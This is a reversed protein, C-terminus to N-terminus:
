KMLDEYCVRTLENQLHPFPPVTHNLLKGPHVAPFHYGHCELWPQRAGSGKSKGVAKSSAAISARGRASSPPRFSLEHFYTVHSQNLNLAFIRSFM